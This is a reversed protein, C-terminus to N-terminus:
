HLLAKSAPTQHMAGLCRGFSSSPARLFRSISLPLLPLLCSCHPSWPRGPGTGSSGPVCGMRGALPAGCVCVLTANRGVLPGLVLLPGRLTASAHTVLPGTLDLAGTVHLAGAMGVPGTGAAM